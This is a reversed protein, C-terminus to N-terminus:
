ILELIRLDDLYKRIFPASLHPIDKDPGIGHKKVDARFRASPVPAGLESVKPYVPEILACVECWPVIRDMQALFQARRTTKGYKEFGSLTRQQM